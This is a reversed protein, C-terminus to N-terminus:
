MRTSQIRGARPMVNERAASANRTCCLMKRAGDRFDTLCVCYICPSFLANVLPFVSWTIFRFTRRDICYNGDVLKFDQLTAFIHNPAYCCTFLLLSYLVMKVTGRIRKRRHLRQEESLSSEIPQVVTLSRLTLISLLVMLIYLLVHFLLDVSQLISVMKNKWNLECYGKLIPDKIYEYFLPQYSLIVTPTLWCCSIIAFRKKRSLPRSVQITQRTVRYREISIIFLNVLPQSKAVFHFFAKTKCYVEAMIGDVDDWMNYDNSIMNKEIYNWFQFIVVIIDALAMNIILFHLSKRATYNVALIIFLINAIIGLGGFALFISHKIAKTIYTDPEAYRCYMLSSYNSHNM